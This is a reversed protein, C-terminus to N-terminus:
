STASIVTNTTFAHKVLVIRRKNTMNDWKKHRANLDWVIITRNGRGQGVARKLLQETHEQGSQTSIYVGM